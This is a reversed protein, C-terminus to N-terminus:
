AYVEKDVLKFCAHKNLPLFLLDIQAQESFMNVLVLFYYVM